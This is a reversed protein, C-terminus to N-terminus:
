LRVKMWLYLELRQQPYFLIDSADYQERNILNNVRLGLDISQLIRLVQIAAFTNIYLPTETSPDNAVDWSPVPADQNQNIDRGPLFSGPLAFARAEVRKGSTVVGGASLLLGISGIRWLYSATLSGKYFSAHQLANGQSDQGLFLGFSALINLGRVPFLRMEFEGGYTTVQNLNDKQVFDVLRSPLQAEGGFREKWLDEGLFGDFRDRQRFAILDNFFSVYGNLSVAMLGRRYWGVQLELSHVSEPRLAPNGFLVANRDLFLFRDQISPAKFANGYLAKIYFGAGPTIIISARPTAVFDYLSDYDFRGGLTFEVYNRFNYQLQVYGSLHLNTFTPDQQYAQYDPFHYGLM